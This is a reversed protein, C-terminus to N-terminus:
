KSKFRISKARRIANILEKECNKLEDFNLEKIECFKKQFTDAHEPLKIVIFEHIKNFEKNFHDYIKTLNQDNFYIEIESDIKFKEIPIKENVIDSMRNFEKITTKNFIADRKSVDKKESRDKEIFKSTNLIRDYIFEVEKMLNKIIVVKEIVKQKKDPIVKNILVRGLLFIVISIVFPHSLFDSIFIILTNFCM